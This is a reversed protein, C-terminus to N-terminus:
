YKVYVRKQKSITMMVNKVSKKRNANKVDM